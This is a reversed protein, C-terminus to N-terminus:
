NFIEQQENPLPLRINWEDQAYRVVKNLFDMMEVTKLDATHKVYEGIIEGTAEDVLPETLFMKKMWDKIKQMSFDNGTTENFSTAFITFLLHIFNNQALSRKKSMREITIIIKKGEHLSIQQKIKESTVGNIKGKTVTSIYVEKAM